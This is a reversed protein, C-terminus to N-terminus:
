WPFAQWRMARTAYQIPQPLTCRPQPLASLIFGSGNCGDYGRRHREGSSLYRLIDSVHYAQCPTLM